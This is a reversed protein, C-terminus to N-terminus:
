NNISDSTNIVDEYSNNNDLTTNSLINARENNNSSNNNNSQLSNFNNKRYNILEEEDEKLRAMLTDNSISNLEHQQKLYDNNGSNDCLESFTEEKNHKNILNVHDLDFLENHDPIVNDFNNNDIGLKIDDNVLDERAKELTEKQEMEQKMENEHITQNKTVEDSNENEMNFENDFNKQIQIM